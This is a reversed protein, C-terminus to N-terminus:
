MTGNPRVGKSRAGSGVLLPALWGPTKYHVWPALSAPARTNYMPWWGRGEENKRMEEKKRTGGNERGGEAAMKKWGVLGM